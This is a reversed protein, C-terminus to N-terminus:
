GPFVLVLNFILLFFIGGIIGILVPVFWIYEM